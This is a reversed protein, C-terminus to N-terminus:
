VQREENYEPYLELASFEADSMKYLKEILPEAIEIMEDDFDAAASIISGILRDRGSMDFICMLNIEEVTFLEPM